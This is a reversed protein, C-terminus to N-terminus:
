STLSDAEFSAQTGTRGERMTVSRDALAAYQMDHAVMVVALGDNALERLLAMVGEGTAKDLSGTPEDAFLIRSRKVLARAIAVRQQEGGSLQGPLRQGLGALGVRELCMRASDKRAPSVPALRNMFPLLVNEQATLYPMLYHQQFIVAFDRHRLANLDKEGLAALDRGEFHLSGSDPSLLTSLISLFTSKGSGSRGVISVFEGAEVDLNAGVLATARHGESDFSKTIDRAHFM